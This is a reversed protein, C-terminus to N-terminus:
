SPRWVSTSRRISRSWMRSERWVNTLESWNRDVVSSRIKSSERMVAFPSSRRRCKKWKARKRTLLTGLASRLTSSNRTKTWTAHSATWFNSLRTEQNEWSANKALCTLYNPAAKPSKPPWSAPLRWTTSNQAPTSTWWKHIQKTKKLRKLRSWRRTCWKQLKLCRKWPWARRKM